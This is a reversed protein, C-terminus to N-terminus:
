NAAALHGDDGHGRASLREELDHIAHKFERTTIESPNEELLASITQRIAEQEGQFAVIEARTREILAALERKVGEVEHFLGAHITRRLRATLGKEETLFGRIMGKIEGERESQFKLVGEMLGDFDKRRLSGVAALRERLSGRIANQGARYGDLLVLGNEILVRVAEVGTDFSTVLGETIEKIESSPTM